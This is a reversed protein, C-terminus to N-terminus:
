ALAGQAQTQQRKRQYQLGEAHRHDGGHELLFRFAMRGKELEKGRAETDEDIEASMIAEAVEEAVTDDYRNTAFVNAGNAIAKEMAPVDLRSCAEFLAEDCDAFRAM